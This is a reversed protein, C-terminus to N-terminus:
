VQISIENLSSKGKLYEMFGSVSIKPPIMVLIHEHDVAMNREVIEVGKWRCLEKIINM